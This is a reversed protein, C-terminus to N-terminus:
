YFILRSEFKTDSNRLSSIKRDASFYIITKTKIKYEGRMSSWSALIGPKLKKVKCNYFRYIENNETNNVVSDREFIPEIQSNYIPLREATTLMNKVYSKSKEDLDIKLTNMFEDYKKFFLVKEKLSILTDRSSNLQTYTSYYDIKKLMSDLSNLLLSTDKIMLAEKQLSIVDSNVFIPIQSNIYDKTKSKIEQVDNLKESSSYKTEFDSCLLILENSTNLFIDANNFNHDILNEYKTKIISYSKQDAPKTIFYIVIITVILAIAILLKKM